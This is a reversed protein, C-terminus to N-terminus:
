EGGERSRHSDDGDRGQLACKHRATLSYEKQEKRITRAIRGQLQTHEEASCTTSQFRNRETNSCVGSDLESRHKGERSTDRATDVVFGWCEEQESHTLQHKVTIRVAVGGESATERQSEEEVPLVARQTAVTTWSSAQRELDSEHWRTGGHRPRGNIGPSCEVHMEEQEESYTHEGSLVYCGMTTRM